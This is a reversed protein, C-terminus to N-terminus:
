TKQGPHKSSTGSTSALSKAYLYFIRTLLLHQAHTHAHPLLCKRTCIKIKFCVFTCICVCTCIYAREYMCVLTSVCENAPNQTINLHALHKRQGIQLEHTNIGRKMMVKWQQGTIDVCHLQVPRNFLYACGRAILCVCMCACVCVCKCM